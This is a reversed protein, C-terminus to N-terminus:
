DTRDVWILTLQRGGLSTMAGVHRDFDRDCIDNWICAASHAFSCAVAHVAAHVLVTRPSLGSRYANM